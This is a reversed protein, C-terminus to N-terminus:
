RLVELADAYFEDDDVYTPEDAAFIDLEADTDDDSVAGDEAPPREPVDPPQVVARVAPLAAIAAADLGGSAADIRAQRQQSARIAMRREAPHRTLGADWRELLEALALRDDVHRAGGTIALRRAYSLTEASFPVGVDSAHEWMLPHWVNDAPDQFYIRSIDDTDYRVPWKGAHVGTNPSRRNRYRTLAEANYRLGNVEVGYHQITRWAVPLLDFVLDARAPVRLRGSRVVGHEFMELPSLDLGPVAPDILGGHPRRHYIGTIWQRIVTELEDIFFYTCGQPDKGRSYVDPGKYGPLAALLQERLTKFFREVAAKDTPTLPRAPQVSIGLRSCVSLLHESLYIKGHDVVIAEAAAGPLGRPGVAAEPPPAATLVVDPAGAYPLLGGGTTRSTNPLLTEYVVMAADVSKTSVPSLRLGTICRSYLDLAITLEVRVWRLTLPEMAFVDLTTTDLLVYEGPRTPRLRGYVNKPRAAISRKGKTSGSFANSGRSLETLVARARRQGPLPVVGDGHEARLRASVRALLLDKTPRSADVHEDLVLRCMALWREDVGGLPDALRLHRGDIVGAPGRDRLGAMWRRLTRITVGLETAKAELRKGVPLSPHYAPRPEGPEALKAEGSRFGTLMERIHALRHRMEAAAPEDLNDLLPGLAAAAAPEDDGGVVRTSPDSVLTGTHLLVMGGTTDRLRIREAELGVVTFLQGDHVLRTGTTLSM